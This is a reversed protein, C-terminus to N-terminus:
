DDEIFTPFNSVINITHPRSLDRGLLEAIQGMAKRSSSVGLAGNFFGYQLGPAICGQLQSAYNASHILCGFRKSTSTNNKTVGLSTNEMIYCEGFRPSTHPFLYYEGNPICSKYPQNNEWDQEVTYFIKDGIYLKGLTGFSPDHAVRELTIKM